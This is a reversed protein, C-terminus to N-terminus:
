STPNPPRDTRYVLQRLQGIHTDVDTLADILVWRRIDDDSWGGARLHLILQLENQHVTRRAGDLLWSWYRLVEPPTADAQKSKQVRESAFVTSVLPDLNQAASTGLEECVWHRVAPPVNSPRPSPASM